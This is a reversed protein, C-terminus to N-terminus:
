SFIFAKPYKKACTVGIPFAGQSDEGDYNRDSTLEGTVLLHVFLSETTPKGCCFCLNSANHYKEM